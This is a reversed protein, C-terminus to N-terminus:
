KWHYGPKCTKEKFIIVTGNDHIAYVTETHKEYEKTYIDIDDLCHEIESYEWDSPHREKLEEIEEKFDNHNKAIVEKYYKIQRLFEKKSLPIIEGSTEMTNIFMEYKVVKAM